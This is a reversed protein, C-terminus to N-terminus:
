LKIKGLKEFTINFNLSDDESIGRLDNQSIMLIEIIRVINNTEIYM